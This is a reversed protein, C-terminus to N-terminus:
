YLGVLQKIEKINHQAIHMAKENGACIIQQLYDPEKILQQCKNRIKSVEEILCHAIAEKFKAMGANAYQLVIQEISQGCCTAFISLLNALEPRNEKDYYIEAISDTKAKRMKQLIADDSDNLNIRSFDSDDSKSMKNNGDRLSMIRMGNENILPEPLPFYEKEVFRNFLGAIDRTLELHQKQDHGVPVLNAKYLLIDAAMLVPYSYLGLSSNEKYKTSKEKFQTMRNLWGMPTICSFIWALEAHGHVASQLFITAKSTDIGCAIYTAVIELSNSMLQAPTYPITMAHMNAIFLLSQHSHQLEVWNKISGLYNGLHLNNTPQIGSVIIAM